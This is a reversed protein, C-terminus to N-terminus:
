EFKLNVLVKTGVGKNTEVSIDGNYKKVENYVLYLGLGTGEDMAKTTFFPEFISELNGPEIGCGNDEVSLNIINNKTNVDIIIRNNEDKSEFSDIANEILNILIINISEVNIKIFNEGDHNNKCTINKSKFKPEMLTIINNIMVTIDERIYNSDSSQSFRVLHEILNNIRNISNEMMVLAKSQTDKNSDIKMLYIGNRITGLPNRIEHSLGASIQGMAMIKNKQHVKKEIIMKQTIDEISIIRFDNEDSLYPTVKVEFCKTGIIRSFIINSCEDSNLIYNDNFLKKIFQNDFMNITLIDNNEQRILKLFSNNYEIIDMNRDVIFLATNLNNLILNLNKKANSIELTKEKVKRKLFYNWAYLFGALLFFVLGIYIYAEFEIGEGRISESIGFWKQQVKSVIKNKKMQLISKNLISLLEDNGKNVALVVDKEYLLEVNFKKTEYVDFEKWYNSIVVEDGVAVDVKGQNLLYLAEKTDNVYVFQTNNDKNKILRNEIYEKALDGKPIAIKKGDLTNLVHKKYKKKSSVIVTKLRYIPMSLDFMKARNQSPFMDCADINQYKLNEVLDYFPFMSIVFESETELSMYNAYDVILGTYMKKEEDYYSIPPATIDSGLKIKGHRKLYKKEVKSIPSSYKVYNIVNTGYKILLIQNLLIVIVFIILLVTLIQKGYNLYKDM